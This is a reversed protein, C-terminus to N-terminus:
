EKEGGKLTFHTVIFSTCGAIVINMVVVELLSM